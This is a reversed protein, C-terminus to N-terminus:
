EASDRWGKRPKGGERGIRLRRVADAEPNGRLFRQANGGEQTGDVLCRRRQRLEEPVGRRHRRRNASLSSRESERLPERYAPYTSTLVGILALTVVSIAATEWTVIMGSFREPM